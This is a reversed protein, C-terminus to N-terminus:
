KKFSKKMEKMKKEAAKKAKAAEKKAIKKQKAAEKSARKSARQAKREALVAKKEVGDKGRTAVWDGARDIVSDQSINAGPHEAAKAEVCMTFVGVFMTFVLMLALVKKM